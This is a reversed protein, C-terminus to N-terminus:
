PCNALEIQASMSYVPGLDEDQYTIGAAWLRGPFAKGAAFGGLHLIKPAPVISWETGNWRLAFPRPGDTWSYGLAWIDDPASATLTSLGIHGYDEYNPMESLAWQQGNWHVAPSRGGAIAWVDDQALAIVHWLSDVSSQQTNGGEGNWEKSIEWEAGDWHIAVAGVGGYTFGTSTGVVWIDTGSVVSIDALDYLRIEENTRVAVIEKGNWRWIRGHTGVFWANEDDVAAVAYLSGWQELGPVMIQEFSKGDWHFVASTAPGSNLQSTGDRFATAMYNGVVWVDNEDQVDLKNVAIDNGDRTKLTQVHHWGSANMRLIDGKNTGVWLVNESIADMAEVPASMPGVVPWITTNWVGCGAVKAARDM